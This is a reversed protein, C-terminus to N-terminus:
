KCERCRAGLRGKGKDKLNSGWSVEISTITTNLTNYLHTQNAQTELTLRRTLFRSDGDSFVVFIFHQFKQFIFFISYQFYSIFNVHGRKEKKKKIHPCYCM